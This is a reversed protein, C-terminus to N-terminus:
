KEKRKKRIRNAQKVLRRRTQESMQDRTRGKFGEKFRTEEGKDLLNEEVVLDYNEKNRQRAIETSEESMIGKIVDLGYDRKYERASLKHVQWVHALVKDYAKCCIHCIPKGEPSYKIEGYEPPRYRIDSKRERQYCRRCILGYKKSKIIRYNEETRECLSCKKM